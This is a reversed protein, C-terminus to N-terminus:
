SPMASAPMAWTSLPRAELMGKPMWTVTGEDTKIRTALLGKVTADALARARADNLVAAANELFILVGATGGYIQPPRREPTEASEPFLVGGSEDKV